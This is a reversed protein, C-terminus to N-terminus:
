DNNYFFWLSPLPRQPTLKLCTCGQHKIMKRIFDNFNKISKVPEVDNLKFHINDVSLRALAPGTFDSYINLLSENVNKKFDCLDPQTM